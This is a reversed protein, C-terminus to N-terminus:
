RAKGALLAQFYEDVLARYRPSVPDHGGKALLAALSPRTRLLDPSLAGPSSRVVDVGPRSSRRRSFDRKEVARPADLLRSLIRQQRELTPQELRGSKLDEVVKKMDEGVEGLRGLGTKGPELKGMVDELGRRIAEQQAALRGLAQGPDPVLRGQSSMQESLNMSQENLSQQEEGLGQMSQMAEKFGSMSSARQMSEMGKLLAAAAQNLDIAAEKSSLLGGALDQGSYRGVANQQNTLARGLAAEIDPTVFLSQRSLKGIRDTAGSTTEQLGQQTEARQETSSSPDGLMRKQADSIELLDRASAEMKQALDNKRRQQFGNRMQDIGKRLEALQQALSRTSERSESEDGQSMAGQARQFEPQAGQPGLADRLKAAQEAAERDLERLAAALSDLAARTEESMKEIARESSALDKMQQKSSTRALSDNLALQRREMEAARESAEELREETQAQRLMEITRELNRLVEEQSMKFNELARQIEQPTMKQLADQLRQISKRLTDDKIRNLLDHLESLKQVLEANLTRSQELKDADQSLQQAAKDIQDRLSQQGEITKQIEQRKEWPVDRTRGIDRALEEAKNQLDQAQKAAEELSSVTEDHKDDMSALIESASPFRIRRTGSWTTQPGDVADADVAGVSYEIEEGPLLSFSQLPWTYRIALERAPVKEEHLTEVEEPKERVRYRILIRKVGYDDTAGAVITTVMEQSVDEVDGPALVTLTPPRDPIARIEYPGLDVRRGRLDVLRLHYREDARIPLTFSALREGPQGAFSAGSGEYLVTASAINRNTTLLLRASSGRPAALDGTLNQSEEPRLGTYAPYEYRVRFGTARPLDVVRLEYTGTRAGGAEVYYSLDEKLNPLVAQFAREEARASPEDTSVVLRTARWRRSSGEATLLRPRSGTGAIFVQVRVAAGSEVERNGPELRIRIPPAPAAEPRMVHRIVTPTRAGGALGVLLLAGLAAGAGALWRGRGRWLRLRGLPLGHARDAAARVAGERLERSYRPDAANGAGEARAGHVGRGAGGAHADGDLERGLELATLLEDDREGALRGAELAAASLGRRAALVRAAALLLLAAAAALLVLRLAAYQPRHLPLTLAGLLALAAVALLSVAAGLAAREVDRALLLRRARRIEDLLSRYAANM